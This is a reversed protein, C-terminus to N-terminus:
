VKLYKQCGYIISNIVETNCLAYLFDNPLTLEMDYPMTM